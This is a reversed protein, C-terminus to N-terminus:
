CYIRGLPDDNPHVFSTQDPLPHYKKNKPGSKAAVNRQKLQRLFRALGPVKNSRSRHIAIERLLLSGLSVRAGDTEAHREFKDKFKSLEYFDRASLAPKCIYAAGPKRSDYARIKPFGVCSSRRRLVRKVSNSWLHEMRSALAIKNQREGGSPPATLFHYHPRGTSEGLEYRVAWIYDHASPVHYIEKGVRRIFEACCSDMVSLPPPTFGKFTLTGFVDWEFRALVWADPSSFEEARHTLSREGM